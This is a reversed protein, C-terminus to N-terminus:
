KSFSRKSFNHPELLLTRLGEVLQDKKTGSPPMNSEDHIHLSIIEKLKPVTFKSLSDEEAMKILQEKTLSSPDDNVPEKKARKSSPGAAAGKGSATRKSGAASTMGGEEVGFHAKIENLANKVRNLKTPDAFYPKLSDEVKISNTGLTSDEIMAQMSLIKPDSFMDPSYHKLKLKSIFTKTVSKDFDDPEFESEVMKDSLDRVDEYYPLFVAYFGTPHYKNQVEEHTKAIHPILAALAVQENNRSSFRVMVAMQREFCTELLTRYARSSGEIEEDTPRLFRSTKIHRTVWPIDAIPKFGLMQIGKKYKSLQVFEHMKNIIKEGGLEVMYNLEKKEYQKQEGSDFIDPHKETFYTRTTATAFKVGGTQIAMVSTIPKAPRAQVYINVNFTIDPGLHFPITSYARNNTISQHIRIPYDAEDYEFCEPDLQYWPQDNPGDRLQQMEEEDKGLLIVAFRGITKKARLAITSIWHRCKNFEEDKAKSKWNPGFPNLNNTLYIVAQHRQATKRMFVSISHFLPQSLDCIAHGGCAAHFAGELKGREGKEILNKLTQAVQVTIHGMPLLETCNELKEETAQDITSNVTNTVIVGMQNQLSDSLATQVIEAYILRLAKLFDCEEGGELMEKSGDVFFFTYKKNMDETQSDGFEDDDGFDFDMTTNNITSASDFIESMNQGDAEIAGIENGNEAGAEDKDKRAEGGCGVRKSNCILVSATFGILLLLGLLDPLCTGYQHLGQIRSLSSKWMPSFGPLPPSADTKALMGSALGLIVLSLSLFRRM